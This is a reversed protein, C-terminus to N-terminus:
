PIQAILLRHELTVLIWTWTLLVYFMRFRGDMGMAFIRFVLDIM